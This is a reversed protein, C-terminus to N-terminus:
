NVVLIADFFRLKAACAESLMPVGNPFANKLNSSWTVIEAYSIRAM